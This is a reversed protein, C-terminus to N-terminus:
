VVVNGFSIKEQPSYNKLLVDEHTWQFIDFDDAGETIYLEPLEGPKRKIQERAAELSSAERTAYVTGDIPSLCILEKSM